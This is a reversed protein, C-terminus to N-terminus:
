VRNSRKAYGALATAVPPAAAIIVFQLWPPLHGLLSADALLQNLLAAGISALMTVLAAVVVKVEITKDTPAPPAEDPPEDDAYYDDPLSHDGV